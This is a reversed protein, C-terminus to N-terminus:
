SADSELDAGVTVIVQDPCTTPTASCAVEKAASGVASVAGSGLHLYKAVALAQARYGPLYGVATASLTQDPYNGTSGERFGEASLKASVDHALNTTSTGNLVAV